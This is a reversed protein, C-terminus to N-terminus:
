KSGVGTNKLDLGVFVRDEYTIDTFVGAALVRLRVVSRKVGDTCTVTEMAPFRFQGVLDKNDKTSFSISGSDLRQYVGDLIIQYAGTDERSVGLVGAGYADVLYGDDLLGDPFTADEAAGSSFSLGVHVRELGTTRLNPLRRNAM